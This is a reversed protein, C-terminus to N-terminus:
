RHEVEWRVSKWYDFRRREEDPSHPDYPETVVYVLGAPYPTVVACGHWLGPPIVLIGPNHEGLVTIWFDQIWLDQQKHAPNEFGGTEKEKVVGIKLDGQVVIWLDTQKKHRHWAKVTGPHIHSFNIQGFRHLGQLMNVFSWGRDDQYKEVSMLLPIQAKEAHEISEEIDSLDRFKLVKM